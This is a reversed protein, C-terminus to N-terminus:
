RIADHNVLVSAVLQFRVAGESCAFRSGFRSRTSIKRQPSDGQVDQRPERARRVAV